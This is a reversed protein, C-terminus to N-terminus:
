INEVLKRMSWDIRVPAYAEENRNYASTCMGTIFMKRETAQKDYWEARHINVTVEKERESM